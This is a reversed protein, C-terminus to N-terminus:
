RPVRGLGRSWVKHRLFCEVPAHFAISLKYLHHDSPMSHSREWSIVTRRSVSLAEALQSQSVGRGVRLGRLVDGQFEAEHKWDPVEYWQKISEM